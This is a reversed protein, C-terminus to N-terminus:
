PTQDLYLNSKKTLRQTLEIKMADPLKAGAKQASLAIHQFLAERTETELGLGYGPMRQEFEKKDIGFKTAAKETLVGTQFAMSVVSQATTRDPDNKASEKFNNLLNIVKQAEYPKIFKSM